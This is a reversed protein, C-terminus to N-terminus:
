NLNIVPHEWSPYKKIIEYIQKAIFDPNVLKKKLLLSQYTKVSPFNSLSSQRLTKQMDTNIVGPRIALFSITTHNEKNLCQTFMELASKASCYLSLGAHPSSAAGSTINIIGLKKLPVKKKILINTILAINLFNINFNNIIEISKMKGVPKVPLLSSANNIFFCRKYKKNFIAKTIQNLKSQNLLHELDAKLYQTQPQHNIKNIIHRNIVIIDNKTKLIFYKHLSFGLGRTTGTIIILDKNNKTHINEM